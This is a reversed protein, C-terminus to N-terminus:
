QSAHQEQLGQQTARYVAGASQFPQVTAFVSDSVLAGQVWRMGPYRARDPMPLVVSFAMLALLGFSSWELWNRRLSM